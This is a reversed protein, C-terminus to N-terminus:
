VNIELVNNPAYYAYLAGFFIIFISSRIEKLSADFSQLILGLWKRKNTLLPKIQPFFIPVKQTVVSFATLAYWDRPFLGPCFGL